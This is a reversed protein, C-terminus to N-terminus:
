IKFSRKACAGIIWIEVIVSLMLFVTHVGGNTTQDLWVQIAFFGVLTALCIFLLLLDIVRASLPDNMEAVSGRLTYVPLHTKKALIDALRNKKLFGPIHHEAFCIFIDDPQANQFAAQALSMDQVLQTQVVVRSDRILAAQTTLNVRSQIDNGVRNPKTLLLVQRCDPAALDWIQRSLAFIDFAADPLIVVLRRSPPLPDGESIIQITKEVAEPNARKLPWTSPFSSAVLHIGHPHNQHTSQVNSSM